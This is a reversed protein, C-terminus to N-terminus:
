LYLGGLVAEWDGRRPAAGLDGILLRSIDRISVYGTPLHANHLEERGVMAGHGIHLHQSVYSSIGTPHWHYGLIERGGADRISYNYGEEVVTWMAHSVGSQVIRYYQQFFLRLRSTGRLRVPRGENLELTHPKESVYYGGGVNAVADSLCSVARQITEVYESVAEAPTRGPM